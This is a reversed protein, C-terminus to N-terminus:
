VTQATVLSPRSPAPRRRSAALRSYAEAVRRPAPGAARDKALQELSSRGTTSRSSSSARARAAHVLAGRGRRRRGQGPRPRPTAAYLVTVNHGRPDRDPERTCAACSASACRRPGDGRADRARLLGRDDGEVRLLRRAPGLAGRFPPRGRQVLLVRGERDRVWADVTLRPMKRLEDYPTEDSM